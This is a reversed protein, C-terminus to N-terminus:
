QMATPPEFNTAAKEAESVTINKLQIFHAEVTTTFNAYEIRAGSDDLFYADFLEKMQRYLDGRTQQVETVLLNIRSAEQSSKEWLHIGVAGAAAALFILLIFALEHILLLDKLSKNKKIM